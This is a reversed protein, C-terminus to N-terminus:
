KRRHNLEYRVVIEYNRGPMPRWLIAQYQTDFINRAVVRLELVNRQWSFKKGLVLDNLLYAPLAAYGVGPNQTTSRSGVYNLTWNMTFGQYTLLLFGNGAHMPIYALQDGRDAGDTIYMAENTTRTWAYQGM